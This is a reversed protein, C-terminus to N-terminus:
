AEDTLGDRELERIIDLAALGTIAFTKEAKIAEGDEEMSKGNEDTEFYSLTLIPVTPFSCDIVIKVLGEVYEGLVLPECDYGEQAIKLEFKKGVLDKVKM